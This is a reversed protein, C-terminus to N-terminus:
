PQRVLVGILTNELRANVRETIGPLRFADVILWVGAIILPIFGVYIWITFWGGLVLALLICASSTEGLYFRHAGFGGLFFWLLYAATLSKRRQMMESNVVALQHDSLQAKTEVQHALAQYDQV